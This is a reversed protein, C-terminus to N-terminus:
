RKEARRALERWGTLLAPRPLAPPLARPGPRRGRPRPHGAYVRGHHEIVTELEVNRCSLYAKTLNLMGYYAIVGRTRTQVKWRPMSAKQSVFMTSQEDSIRLRQEVVVQSPRTSTHERLLGRILRLRRLRV